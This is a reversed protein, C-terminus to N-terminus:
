HTGPFLVTTETFCGGEGVFNGHLDHHVEVLLVCTGTEGPEVVVVYPRDGPEVPHASAVGASAALLVVAGAIVASLKKVDGEEQFRV